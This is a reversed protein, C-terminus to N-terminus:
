SVGEWGARARKPADDMVAQTARALHVAVAACAGSRVRRGLVELANPVAPATGAGSRRSGGMPVNQEGLRENNTVSRM